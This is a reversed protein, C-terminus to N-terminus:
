KNKSKHNKLFSPQTVKEPIRDEPFNIRNDNNSFSDMADKEDILTELTPFSQKCNLCVRRRFRSTRLVDHTYLVKSKRGSCKPCRM